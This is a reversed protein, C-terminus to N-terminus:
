VEWLKIGGLLGAINKSITVDKSFKCTVKHMNGGGVYLRDFNFIRRMLNVAEELHHNWGEIGHKEVGRKGLYDEYTQNDKFPHHGLELNPVLKGDIFLASGLGTGLTIVMELGKGHILGYGQIDADNAAKTPKSTKKQIAHALDFSAWEGDLNPATEVVGDKVVGPFGVSVRDFKPQRTFMDELTKLIAQPTAPRPTPQKEREQLPQDQEDVAMMKLSTGGIDIALTTLAM